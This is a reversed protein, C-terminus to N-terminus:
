IDLKQINKKEIYISNIQLYDFYDQYFNVLRQNRISFLPHDFTAQHIGGLIVEDHDIIIVGMTRIRNNTTIEENLYTFYKYKEYNEIQKKIWDIVLLNDPKSIVRHCENNTQIFNEIIQLYKRGQEEQAPIYDGLHIIRIEKANKLRNELYNDFEKGSSFSDIFTQNELSEEISSIGSIIQQDLMNKISSVDSIIQQDLMNKISSVDSNIKTRIFYIELCVVIIFLPILYESLRKGQDPATIMVFFLFLALIIIGALTNEFYLNRLLNMTKM